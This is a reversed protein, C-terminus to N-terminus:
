VAMELEVGPVSIFGPPMNSSASASASTSQSDTPKPTSADVVPDPVAAVKKRKYKTFSNLAVQTCVNMTAIMHDM